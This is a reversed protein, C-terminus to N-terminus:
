TLRHALTGLHGEFRELALHTTLLSSTNLTWGSWLVGASPSVKWACVDDQLLVGYPQSCKRRIWHKEFKVSCGKIICNKMNHCVRLWLM